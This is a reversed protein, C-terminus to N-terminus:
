QTKQYFLWLKKRLKVYQEVSRWDHKYINHKDIWVYTVNNIVKTPSSVFIHSHAHGYVYAALIYLKRHVVIGLVWYYECACPNIPEVKNHDDTATLIM